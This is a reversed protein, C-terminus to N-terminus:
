NLLEWPMVCGRYLGYLLIAVLFAASGALDLARPRDHDGILREGQTRQRASHLQAQANSCRTAQTKM